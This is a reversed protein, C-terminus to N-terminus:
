ALAAKVFEVCKPVEISSRGSGQYEWEIMAPIPYKEQKILQLAAKIPTDGQGWPMNMGNDRKRDKLHINTIRSYHQQLYPVADYNAATFHGIDLNLWINKSMDMAAQFSEPKAIQNPDKLNAHNHVAVIIKYKDAFPAVQKVVPLTTSTTIVDVGLAKTFEFIRELEANAAAFKGERWWQGFSGFTANFSHLRIGASDFKKRIGRYHDLSVTERWKQQTARAALEAETPPPLTGRVEGYISSESVKGDKTIYTPNSPGVFIRPETHSQMLECEKLGAHKMAAILEDIPDGTGNFLLDRFSYSQVGIRVGNITSDVAALAARRSAAFALPLGVLAIKSFDRRTRM